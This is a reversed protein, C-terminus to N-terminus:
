IFLDGKAKNCSLAVKKIELRVNVAEAWLRSLAAEGSLSLPSRKGNEKSSLSSASSPKSTSASSSFQRTKCDPVIFVCFQSMAVFLRRPHAALTAFSEPYRELLHPTRQVSCGSHEQGPLIKLAEAEQAPHIVKPQHPKFVRHLIQLGKRRLGRLKGFVRCLFVGDTSNIGSVFPGVGSDDMGAPLSFFFSASRKRDGDSREPFCGGLLANKGNEDPLFRRDVACVLINEPVSPSKAGVLEFGAPVEIPETAM